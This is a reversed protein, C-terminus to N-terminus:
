SYSLGQLIGCDKVAQNRHCKSRLTKLSVKLNKIERMRLDIQKIHKDVLDNVEKCQTEPSQKLNLLRKIESLTIDLSRCRKIFTLQEISKQNYLRYNGESREPADLLLEREYFRISQISCDTLKALEGIKM